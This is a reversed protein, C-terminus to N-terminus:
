AAEIRLAALGLKAPSQPAAKGGAMALVAIDKSGRQRLKATAASALVCAQRRQRGEGVPTGRGASLTEVARWGVMREAAARVKDEVPKSCDITFTSAKKGKKPGAAAKKIGIQVM